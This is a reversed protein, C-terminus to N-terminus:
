APWESEDRSSRTKKRAANRALRERLSGDTDVAGTPEIWGDLPSREVAPGRPITAAPVSEPQPAPAPEFAAAQEQLRDQLQAGRDEAERARELAFSLEEGMRAMRDNLEAVERRLVIEAEAQAEALAQAELRAELQEELHDPPASGGRSGGELEAIRARARELDDKAHANTVETRALLTEMEAQATAAARRSAEADTRAEEVSRELNAVLESTGAELVQSGDARAGLAEGRTELEDVRAALEAVRVEATQAKAKWRAVDDDAASSATAAQLEHLRVKAEGLEEQLENVRAAARENDTNLRGSVRELEGELTRREAESRALEDNLYQLDESSVPLPAGSGNASVFGAGAKAARRAPIAALFGVAIMLAMLAGVLTAAERITTWPQSSAALVPTYPQVIEVAGFPAGDPGTRLPLFTTMVEGDVITTAKGVGKVSERLTDELATTHDNDITSYRLTGTPTWLRVAMVVEGALAHRLRADLQASTRADIPRELSSVGLSGDVENAVARARGQTQTRATTLARGQMILSGVFLGACALLVVVFVGRNRRLRQVPDLAMAM